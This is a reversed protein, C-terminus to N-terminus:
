YPYQVSTVLELQGGDLYLSFIDDVVGTYFDGNFRMGDHIVGSMSYYVGNNLYLVEGTSLPVMVTGSPHIAVSIPNGVSYNAWFGDAIDVVRDAWQSGYLDFAVEESAIERLIAGPEIAYVKPSSQIKVLNTGPRITVNRGLPYTDMEDQAVEEVDEFDQWWSFFVSESPFAHRKGDSGIVYVATDYTTEPNGDDIMKILRGVSNEGLGPDTEEEAEVIEDEVVAEEEDVYLELVELADLKWVEEEISTIRVYRYPDTGTYDAITETVGVDFMKSWTQLLNDEADYFEVRVTAGWALITNYLKLDGVGEEGIGLDVKIYHDQNLFDAYTSDPAGLANSPSLVQNTYTVLSDAYADVEEARLGVAPMLLFTIIIFFITIQRM